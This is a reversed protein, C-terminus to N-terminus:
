LGYNEGIEDWGPNDEQTIYLKFFDSLDLSYAGGNEMANDLGEENEVSTATSHVIAPLSIKIDLDAPDVDGEMGPAVYIETGMLIDELDAAAPLATGYMDYTTGDITVAFGQDILAQLAAYSESTAFVVQAKIWLPGDNFVTIFGNADDLINTAGLVFADGPRVNSVTGDTLKTGVLPRAAAPVPDIGNAYAPVFGDLGIIDPNEVGALSNRDPGLNPEAVAYSWPIAGDASADIEGNTISLTDTNTSVDIVKAFYAYTGALSLIAIALVIAIISKRRKKFM